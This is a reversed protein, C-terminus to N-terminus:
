ILGRRTVPDDQGRLHIPLDRGVLEGATRQIFWHRTYITHTVAAQTAPSAKTTSPRTRSLATRVVQLHTTAIVAAQTPLPTVWSVELNSARLTVKHVYICPQFDAQFCAGDRRHHDNAPRRKKQRRKSHTLVRRCATSSGASFLTVRRRSISKASLKRAQPPQFSSSRFDNISFSLRTTSSRFVASSHRHDWLKQSPRRNQVFSIWAQHSISRIQDVQLNLSPLECCPPQSHHPPM